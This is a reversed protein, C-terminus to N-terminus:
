NSAAVGELFREVRRSSWERFEPTMPPSHKAGPILEAEAQPLLEKVRAILAVGPFNVDDEAGFVLVPCRIGAVDEPKALPPIRMDLRYCQLADKFYATWEPDRTTFLSALARDLRRDSPFMRFTLMPWGLDRFSAWVNNSVWGAPVMLVLSRVRDPMARAGRLAVFGGWSVGELDFRDLGLGDAVESLWRGYSDDGLELRVDESKISQGIVDIAYVRRTKVLMGLEPMVHASSALAGHLVVLPPASEPGTVLAHTVGFSTPVTRPEVSQPIRERFREFWQSITAKKSEDLFLSSRSM